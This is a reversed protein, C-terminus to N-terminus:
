LSCFFYRQTQQNLILILLYCKSYNKDDNLIEVKIDKLNNWNQLDPANEKLIHAALCRLKEPSRLAVYVDPLVSGSYRKLLIGSHFSNDNELNQGYKIM